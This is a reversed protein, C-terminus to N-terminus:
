DEKNLRGRRRALYLVLVVGAAILVYTTSLNDLM